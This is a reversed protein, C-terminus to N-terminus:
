KEKREAWDCYGDETKIPPTYYVHGDGWWQNHCYRGDWHKCDKCRIVPVADIIPQENIAQEIGFLFMGSDRTNWYDTVTYSKKIITNMLADADILRTM